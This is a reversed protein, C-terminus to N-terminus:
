MIDLVPILTKGRESLSYEVEPPIQPQEKRVFLNDKELDKLLRLTKHSIIGICKKIESYKM